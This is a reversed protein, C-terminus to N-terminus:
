SWIYCGGVIKEAKEQLGLAFGDKKSLAEELAVLLDYYLNWGLRENKLQQKLSSNEGQVFELATAIRKAGHSIFELGQEDQSGSFFSAAKLAFRLHVLTVPIKSIFCGTFPDFRDKLRSLNDDLVSGYASFYLIRVYDGLLKGIHASQIAEQAFAKKDHRMILGDKHAYALKVGPNPYVSFIYAQDEARGFFSPTFPRHHRLSSILIGNTGGTVHVRQICTRKGDLALTSYRTMMEAETSLAQPLMSFFVHEDPFLERNPQVVDPTFLSNSIDGENVLAGAIMGLELPRGKSDFGQAGWLPSTFHEFASAGSQKVLEEQPFVQDLDIKFTAKIEPELVIQWFAAIAKLFSYHRGYEGDVGFVSFLGKLDNGGLYRAAAPVLIDDVLRRTDAESFVYVDINKLGGVKTFEEEIYRRAITQLSPHTVSVSLLCTLKADNTTNGHNREFELADQLGRLGYLVENKEPAVGIQIPHDYWYLQPESKALRIKKRLDGSVPLTDISQSAPPITLLVNSTFLIERAPDTIVKENLHTIAVTRKKRLEESRENWHTRLSNAEPFFVSWLYETVEHSRILNEKKSLWASVTKLRNAFKKDLRCVTKIEHHTKEIGSLYFEATDRWEPSEAMRTLFGLASSAKPHNQGAVVILFAANLTQAVGVKDTREQDFQQAPDLAIPFTAGHEPRVLAYVISQFDELMM